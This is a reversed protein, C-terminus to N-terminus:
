NSYEEAPIFPRTLSHLHSLSSLLPMNYRLILQELKFKGRMGVPSKGIIVFTRHTSEIIEFIIYHDMRM